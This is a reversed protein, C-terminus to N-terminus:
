PRLVESIGRASLKKRKSHSNSQALGGGKRKGGLSARRIRNLM